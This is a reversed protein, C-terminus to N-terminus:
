WLRWSGTTWLIGTLIYGYKCSPAVMYGALPWLWGQHWHRPLSPYYVAACAELSTPFWGYGSLRMSLLLCWPVQILLILDFSGIFYQSIRVKRLQPSRLLKFLVRTCIGRTIYLLVDDPKSDSYSMTLYVTLKQWPVRTYFYDNLRAERKTCSVTERYKSPLSPNQSTPASWISFRWRPSLWSGSRGSVYLQTMGYSSLEDLGSSHHRVLLPCLYLCQAVHLPRRGWRICALGSSGSSLLRPLPSQENVNIILAPLFVICDWVPLPWFWDCLPNDSYQGSGM